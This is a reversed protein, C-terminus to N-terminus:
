RSQSTQLRKTLQHLHSVWRQTHSESSSVSRCANYVTVQFNHTHGSAPLHPVLTDVRTRTHTGSTIRPAGLTTSHIRCSTSQTSLRSDTHSAHPNATPTTRTRGARPHPKIELILLQAHGPSHRLAYTFSAEMYSKSMFLAKDDVQIMNLAKCPTEEM